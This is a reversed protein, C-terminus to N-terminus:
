QAGYHVIKKLLDNVEEVPKALQPCSEKQLWTQIVVQKRHQRVAIRCPMNLLFDPDTELFVRAYELNCFHLIRAEPFDVSIERSIATGIQNESTLRFNAESIAFKLDDIVDEFSKVTSVTYPEQTDDDAMSHQVAAYTLLFIMSNLLM